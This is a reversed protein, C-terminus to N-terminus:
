QLVFCNKRNLDKNKQFLISGFNIQDKNLGQSILCKGYEPHEIKKITLIESTHGKLIKIVEKKDLDVLRINKDNCGVFLYKNNWLCMGYLNGDNVKIKSLLEASHFNWTRLYGDDCSEILNINHQIKNIIVIFHSRDENEPSNDKYEHYLKNDEYDYSKIYNKNGNIIYIKNNIFDYFIDIFFTIENSNPIEKIINGTFNYVKINEPIEEWNCNSSIIYNKNEYILFCASYLIGNKNAKQINLICNWNEANWIKINNNKQSISMLLDRKNITDLHHRLNTINENHSNNIEKIINKKNLDYCIISNKINSYILYLEDNISKFVSFTNNDVNISSFSDDTINSLLKINKINKNESTQIFNIKENKEIELNNKNKKINKYKNLPYILKNNKKIILNNEHKLIKIDNKLKNIENFIFDNNDKEYLLIIEFKKGNYILILKLEKNLIIKEIKINNNEFFSNIFKFANYITNFENKFLISLEKLNFTIFYNKHKVMIIDERKEVTLKYITNKQLLYYEQYENESSKNIEENFYYNEM